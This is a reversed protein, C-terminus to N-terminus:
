ASAIPAARLVRFRYIRHANVRETRAREGTTMGATVAPVAELALPALGAQLRRKRVEIGGAGVARPRAGRPLRRQM